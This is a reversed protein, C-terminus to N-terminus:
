SFKKEMLLKKDYPLLSTIDDENSKYEQIVTFGLKKYLKRANDNNKFLQLQGKNIEPYTDRCNQIHKSILQGALGYGRADPSVYVYEFQLTSHERAITLGKMIGSNEHMSALCAHPFTYGILNTKALGSPLGGNQDEIWAAATAVPQGNKVALLFSNISFECGDIEEELMSSLYKKLQQETIGFLTALGCHSTGGKEAQIIADAIFDADNLQAKRLIIESPM